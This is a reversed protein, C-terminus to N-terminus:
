EPPPPADDTSGESKRRGGGARTRRELASRCYYLLNLEILEQELTAPDSTGLSRAVEEVLLQAYRERARHLLQRIGAVTYAKGVQAGVQEALQASRLEPSKTKCRLVTHYPQGAEEQAKALAEWTRALLEERWKDLFARDFDHGPPPGAAARERGGTPLPPPAKGKARWYDMVLRRLATKLFDRFRGQRPDARCFDGRLFRVAFEQTLEEAAAPDRLAGLHYRYVAGYYRLLLQQLAATAADKEGRHAQFLKSWSTKISSLRENLDNPQMASPGQRQAPSIPAGASVHGV